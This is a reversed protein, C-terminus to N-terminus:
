VGRCRSNQDLGHSEPVLGASYQFISVVGVKNTLEKLSPSLVEDGRLSALRRQMECRVHDCRRSALAISTM